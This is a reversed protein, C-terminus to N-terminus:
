QWVPVLTIEKAEKVGVTSPWCLHFCSQCEDGHVKSCHCSVLVARTKKNGWCSTFLTISFLWSIWSLCLENQACAVSFCCCTSIITKLNLMEGKHTQKCVAFVRWVWMTPSMSIISSCAFLYKDIFQSWVKRKLIFILLLLNYLKSLSDRKVLQIQRIKGLAKQGSLCLFIFFGTLVHLYKEATGWM